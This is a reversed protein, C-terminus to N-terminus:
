VSISSSCFHYLRPPLDFCFISVNKMEFFMMPETGGKKQRNTTMEKEKKKSTQTM